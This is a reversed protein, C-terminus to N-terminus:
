GGADGYEPGNLLKRLRDRGSPWALWYVAFPSVVLIWGLVLVLYAWTGLAEHVWARLRCRPLEFPEM